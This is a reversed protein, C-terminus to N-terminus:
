LEKMWIYTGLLLIEIFPYLISCILITRPITKFGILRFLLVIPIIYVYQWIFHFFSFNWQNPDNSITKPHSAEYCYTSTYIVITVLSYFIIATFVKDHTSKKEESVINM